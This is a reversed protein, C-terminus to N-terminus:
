DFFGTDRWFLKSLPDLNVSDDPSDYTTGKARADAATKAVVASKVIFEGNTRVLQVWGLNELTQKETDTMGIPCAKEPKEVKTIMTAPLWRLKRDGREIGVKGTALNIAGVTEWREANSYKILVRDGKSATATAFTGTARSREWDVPGLAARGAEAREAQKEEIAAKTNEVAAIAEAVQEPTYAKGSKELLGESARFAYTKPLAPIPALTYEFTGAWRGKSIRRGYVVVGYVPGSRGAVVVAEGRKFHAM